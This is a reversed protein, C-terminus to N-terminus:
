TVGVRHGRGDRGDRKPTTHRTVNHIANIELCCLESRECMSCVPSLSCENYPLRAAATEADRTQAANEAGERSMGHMQDDPVGARWALAPAQQFSVCSELCGGRRCSGRWCADHVQRRGQSQARADVCWAVGSQAANGTRRCVRRARVRPARVTADPGHGSLVAQFTARRSRWGAM